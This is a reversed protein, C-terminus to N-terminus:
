YLFQNIAKDLRLFHFYLVSLFIEYFFSLKLLDIQLSLWRKDVNEESWSPFAFFILCIISLLLGIGRRTAELILFLIVIGSFIDLSTTDGGSMAIEEWSFIM